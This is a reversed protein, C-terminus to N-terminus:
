DAELPQSFRVTFEQKADSPQVVLDITYTDNGSLSFEGLYSVGGADRVPRPTPRQQDGFLNRVTIKVTAEVPTSAGGAQQRLVTVNVLGRDHRRTIGAERAMEEGIFDARFANYHIEYPPYAAFQAAHAVSALAVFSLVSLCRVAFSPV